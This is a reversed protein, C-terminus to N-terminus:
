YYQYLGHKILTGALLASYQVPMLHCCLPKLNESCYSIHVIIGKKFSKQKSMYCLINGIIRNEKKIYFLESDVLPCKSIRQLLSAESINLFVSKHETNYIQNVQNSKEIQLNNPIHNFGLNNFIFLPLKFIMKIIKILNNGKSTFYLSKFKLPKKLVLGKLHYKLNILTQTKLAAETGNITFGFDALKMVCLMLQIGLIGRYGQKVRWAFPIVGLFKERKFQYNSVSFGIVGVIGHDPHLAVFSSYSDDDLKNFYTWELEEINRDDNMDHYLKEIGKIDEISSRRITISMYIQYETNLVNTNCFLYL